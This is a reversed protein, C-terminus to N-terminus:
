SLASRAVLAQSEPDSLALATVMYQPQLKQLTDNAIEKEFFYYALRRYRTSKRRHHIHDQVALDLQQQALPNADARHVTLETYNSM